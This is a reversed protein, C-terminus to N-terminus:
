EANPPPRPGGRGGRATQQGLGVRMGATHAKYIERQQRTRMLWGELDERDKGMIVGVFSAQASKATPYITLPSCSM